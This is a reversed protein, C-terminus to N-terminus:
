STITVRRGTASSERIADLVQICRYGDGFSPSPSLGEEIGRAFERTLLRFPMLRDDRDDTFPELREPIPLSALADDLGLRAGLVEGHARPNMSDQPTVLVGETGSVTISFDSVFPANRSSTMEVIVGSAFRLTCLFTDDADAFVVEGNLRRVPDTTLVRGDVEVVDGFWHRLGDISHSGMRFLFGGGAAASDNPLDFEPPPSTPANSTGRILRALCFTPTGIYGEDILEKARMRGSAFRFEHAVMATRGSAEAAEFMERADKANNAFPKECIIHKGAALAAIAMDHHLEAPGAISVADLGPLSLLEGFDTVVTDIGLRIAEKEARDRRRACLAVVDLGESQFAPVHVRTGFGVGVVAIKLSM